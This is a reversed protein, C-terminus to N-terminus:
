PTPLLRKVEPELYPALDICQQAQRAAVDSLGHESLLIAVSLRLEAQERVKMGRGTAYHDIFKRMQDLDV